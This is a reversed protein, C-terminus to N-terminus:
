CRTALDDSHSQTRILVPCRWHAALDRVRDCVAVREPVSYRQPSDNITRHSRSDPFNQSGATGENRVGCVGTTFRRVPLGQDAVRASVQEVKAEAEALANRAQNAEATLQRRKLDLSPLLREYLRLQDREKQLAGKNMATKAM